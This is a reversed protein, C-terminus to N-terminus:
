ETSMDGKIVNPQGLAIIIIDAKKLDEIFELERLQSKLAQAFIDSNVLILAKKNKLNEKTSKLAQDIALIFPPKFQSDKVFGDVDKAPKIAQIVRNASINKPLPMQVLIGDIQKNQNLSDILDLIEKESTQELLFNKRIEIGIKQAAAEKKQIYLRSASDHGVLIVALIPKLKKKDIEEKLDAM